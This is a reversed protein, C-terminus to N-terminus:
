PLDGAVEWVGQLWPCRTGPLSVEEMIMRSPLEWQAVSVGPLWSTIIKRICRPPAEVVDAENGGPVTKLVLHKLSVPATGPQLAEMVGSVCDALQADTLQFSNTLLLQTLATLSTWWPQLHGTVVGPHVELRQLGPLQQLLQQVHSVEQQQDWDADPACWVGMESIYLATLQQFATLAVVAEHWFRGELRLSRLQPLGALQQLVLPLQSGETDEVGLLELHRLARLHQLATLGNLCFEDLSAALDQRTSLATLSTLQGPVLPDGWYLHFARATYQVLRDKIQLLAEDPVPVDVMRITQVHDLDSLAHAEGMVVNQLTLEQLATCSALSVPDLEPPDGVVELVLQKLGCPLVQELRPDMWRSDSNVVLHLMQLQPCLEQLAPVAPLAQQGNPICFSGADSGEEQRLSISAGLHRLKSLQPLLPALNVLTNIGDVELQVLNSFSKPAVWLQQLVPFSPQEYSKIGLHQVQHGYATFWLIADQLQLGDVAALDLDLVLRLAEWDWAQSASRWARCVRAHKNIGLVRRGVAFEQILQLVSDPLDSVDPM